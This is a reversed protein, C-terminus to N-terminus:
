VYARLLTIVGEASSFRRGWQLPSPASCPCCWLPRGGIFIPPGMSAPRARNRKTTKRGKRRHFDAAGNFSRRAGRRARMWARRGGIFIPPGMSAVAGCGPELWFDERGGIFIPPGMSAETEAAVVASDYTDRGGIFIPPGMSAAMAGNVQAMRRLRGGIFIPPGMSAYDAQDYARTADTRGGIFIPPGMSAATVRAAGSPAAASRGGIFIPPGMSAFLLENHGRMGGPVKRRHFDAAGNFGLSRGISLLYQNVRGGIFIPPGMSAGPLAVRRGGRRSRGGIFIPPGM